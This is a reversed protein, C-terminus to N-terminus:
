RRNSLRDAPILRGSLSGLQESLQDIDPTTILTPGNRETKIRISEDRVKLLHETKIGTLEGLSTAWLSNEPSTIQEFSIVCGGYMYLSLLASSNKSYYRDRIVPYATGHRQYTSFAQRQFSRYLLIISPTYGLKAALLPIAASGSKIYDVRSLISDLKKRARYRHYKRKWMTTRSLFSQQRLELSRQYHGEAKGVESAEYAGLREDWEINDPMGFNAGSKALISSLLSSGCRGTSLVIYCRKDHPQM